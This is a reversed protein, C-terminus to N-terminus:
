YFYPGGGMATHEKRLADEHRNVSSIGLRKAKADSIKKKWGRWGVRRRILNIVDHKFYAGM